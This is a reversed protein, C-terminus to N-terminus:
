FTIPRGARGSVARTCSLESSWGGRCTSRSRRSRSASGPGIRVRPDSRVGSRSTLTSHGNRPRLAADPSADPLRMTCRASSPVGRARALGSWGRGGRNPFLGSAELTVYFAPQRFPAEVATGVQGLEAASVEGLFRLTIHLNPTEVWKVSMGSFATHQRLTSIVAGVAERSAFALEVAVFVRM